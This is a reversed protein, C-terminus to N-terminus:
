VQNLFFHQLLLITKADRFAGQKLQERVESFGMEVIEIDEGEDKLGGGNGIRDKESYGAIFFHVFETTSGSSTYAGAVKELDHIEYGMEEQVERRVTQEPTENEDIIGACTEIIYGSDSGNLFAPLRFQRTLLIKKRKNNVLLVTVADPRFYVEKEQKHFRGENDPKEYRIYKLPYKKNSLIEKDLIQITAM